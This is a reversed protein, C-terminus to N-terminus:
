AQPPLYKQPDMPKGQRRIEFHLKVQDADSNGMEAIKAGRAVMDGEKVVIKSNHAYATLYMENHKIIVLQGYGRLGSGAYVVKGAASAVVPQGATGAIDIGKLTSAESFTAVVKGKAPWMWDLRDDDSGMAPAAPKAAAAAPAASAVATAPQAPAAAATAADPRTAANAAALAKPYERANEASYPEKLAKPASKVLDARPAAAAGAPPYLAGPTTPAATGSAPPEAGGPKAEVIPGASRLPTTVVGNAGSAVVPAAGPAATGPATLRLVQGVRILNVNEINNWAALDRYDLGKDLAILALTDGRKVTYTPVQPEAAAVPAPAPPAATVPAPPPGLPAREQVPAPTRTACGAVAVLLAIVLARSMVKM